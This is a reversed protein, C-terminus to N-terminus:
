GGGQSEYTNALRETVSGEREAVSTLGAFLKEWIYNHNLPFVSRRM